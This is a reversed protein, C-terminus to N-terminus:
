GPHGQQVGAAKRAQLGRLERHAYGERRRAERRAPVDHSSVPVGFPRPGASAPSASWPRDRLMPRSGSIDLRLMYEAAAADAPDFSFRLSSEELRFVERILEEARNTTAYVLPGRAAALAASRLPDLVGDQAMRRYLGELLQEAARGPPRPGRRSRQELAAKRRAPSVVREIRSRRGAAGATAAPEGPFPRMRAEMAPDGDSRDAAM